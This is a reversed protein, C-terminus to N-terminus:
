VIEELSSKITPYQFEFGAEILNRPLVVAGETLLVSAEGLFAKLVFEPISFIAPRGLSKALAKTFDKNSINETAVLNFVGNTNLDEVCWAFARAVDNIHVFPFPQKGNGLTAGLGLKFPLLLNNITKADKGLVVGIRFINRQINPSLSNSAAEWQKVVTGVFGDDFNQSTEDHSFSAKYVGIASASIFKGPQEDVPLNNIAQVLNQTTKVRSDLITAKNKDTWRQLIPAGALNIIADCNRIETQLNNTSGYLLKREIGSVEHGKEILFNVIYNGLYGSAGTIKIKLAKHKLQKNKL